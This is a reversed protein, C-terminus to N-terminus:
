GVRDGLSMELKEIRERDRGWATSSKRAPRLIYVRTPQFSSLASPFTEAFYRWIQHCGVHCDMFPARRGLDDGPANASNRCSHTPLKSSCGIGRLAIFPHDQYREPLWPAQMTRHIQGALGTGKRAACQHRLSMNPLYHFVRLARLITIPHGETLRPWTSWSSYTVAHTWVFNLTSTLPREPGRWLVASAVRMQSFAYGYSKRTQARPRDPGFPGEMSADREPDHPSGGSRAPYKESFCIHPKRSPAKKRGKTGARGPDRGAARLFNQSSHTFLKFHIHSALVPAGAVDLCVKFHIHLSTIRAGQSRLDPKASHM